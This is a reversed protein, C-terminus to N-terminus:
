LLSAGASRFAVALVRPMFEALNSAQRSLDFYSLSILASWAAPSFAPTSPGGANKISPRGSVPACGGGFNSSSISSSNAVPPLLLCAEAFYPRRELRLAQTRRGDLVPAPNKM